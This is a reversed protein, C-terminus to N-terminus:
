YRNITPNSFKLDHKIPRQIASLLLSSGTTETIELSEYEADVMYIHSM